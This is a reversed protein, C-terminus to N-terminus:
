IKHFLWVLLLQSYSFLINAIKLEISPFWLWRIDQMDSMDADFIHKEYANIWKSQRTLSSDSFENFKLRDNGFFWVNKMTYM